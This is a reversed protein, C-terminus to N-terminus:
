GGGDKFYLEAEANDYIRPRPFGSEKLIDLALDRILDEPVIGDEIVGDRDTRYYFVKDRYGLTTQGTSDMKMAIQSLLLRGEKTLLYGKSM